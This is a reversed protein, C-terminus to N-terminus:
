NMDHIQEDKVCYLFYDTTRGETFENAYNNHFTTGNRKVDKNLM